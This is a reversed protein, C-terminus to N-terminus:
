KPINKKKDDDKTADSICRLSIHELYSLCSKWGVKQWLTNKFNWTYTKAEFVQKAGSKNSEPLGHTSIAVRTTSTFTHKKAKAINRQNGERTVEKEREWSQITPM